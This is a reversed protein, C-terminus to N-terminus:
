DDSGADADGDSDGSDADGGESEESQEAAAEADAEAIADAELTTASIQATVIAEEVDVDTTVGAPLTLDGVRIAEGLQLGSIDVTIENPIDAPKANVTLTFLLHDVTGDQREVDEAEGELIVPVDVSILADASVRLFDLHLVNGKIPHRQLEKVITLAVDGDIDLNILANLGAEGTLAERLPKWDVTVPIPDADLGYVVGPIRGEVRIRKAPGTGLERGTEAKLTIEAM